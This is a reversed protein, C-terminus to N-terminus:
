KQWTIDTALGTQVGMTYKAIIRINDSGDLTSMDLVRVETEDSILDTGAFLSSQLAVVANNDPMGPCVAIKVGEFYPVYDNNMSYANVYGAASIASIYLRYAKVGMYMYLDESSKAYVAAPVAALLAGLEDIVNAATYAGGTITPAATPADAAFAALFGGFEGATAEVGSWISSETSDAIIGAIHSILFASFDAGMATNWQGSKMQLAQWEKILDKKCIQFNVQLPKPQLVKDVMVLAGANTFDCSRNQVLTSGGTMVSLSQKFKINEMLTVYELSKAQNLAAAIYQGAHTGCFNSTIDLGQEAM